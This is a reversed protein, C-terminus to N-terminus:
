LYANRTEDTNHSNRKLKFAIDTDPGCTGCHVPLGIVASNRTLHFSASLHFARHSWDEREIDMVVEDMGVRIGHHGEYHIQAGDGNRLQVYLGAGDRGDM